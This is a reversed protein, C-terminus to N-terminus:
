TTPVIKNLVLFGLVGSTIIIVVLTILLLLGNLVSSKNKM